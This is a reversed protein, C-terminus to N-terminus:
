SHPPLAKAEDVMAGLYEVLLVGAQNPDGAAIRNGLHSEPPAFEVGRNTIPVLTMHRGRVNLKSPDGTTVPVIGQPTSMVGFGGDPGLDGARVSVSWEARQVVEQISHESSNRAQQAYQLLPDAKRQGKRKAFWGESVADGKAGQELKAYIAGGAGILDHWGAEMEVLSSAATMKELGSQARALREEAQRVASERM